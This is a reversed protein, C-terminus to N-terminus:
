HSTIVDRGSTTVYGESSVSRGNMIRMYINNTSSDRWLIDSRTDGDYDGAALVDWSSITVFGESAKVLGNMMSMYYYDNTTDHWLIDANGDGDFDHANVVEWTSTTLYGESKTGTGDMLRVYYNNTSTDLWLIDAKGDGDFDAAAAVDWSSTTVYGEDTKSKGDMFSLFFRSSGDRWLIDAKQDGDFDEVAMVDWSSTTVYGESSVTKGNMIRLFFNNTTNDRWLVDSKGDATFDRTAIVEWTSTTVYGESTKSKGDMFSMFYNDTSTDHWLIDAKADGDFDNLVSDATATPVTVDGYRFLGRGHTAAILTTDDYWFLQDVSVNAPGDNDTYWNSGGDESTFIGVETGVYLWDAANPHRVISRMPAQPLGSSIDSWSSGSDTTKMLNGSSFGGWGAYITQHDDKDIHLALVYKGSNSGDDIQSWSSGGDTSLYISGDNHGVVIVNSDGEAVAIQSIYSGTSSKIASWSPTSAKCDATKWLSAGGGYLISDNNPDVLFPAIFNASSGADSIGSYIDTSNAGNNSRHIQLYVYEGFYYFGSGNTAVGSFGGDGGYTDYFDTGTSQLLNGNDQTGGIVKSDTMGAAGYFQTIGLDNNLDTWGTSSYGSNAATVDEAKYVGGDNVFYVRKNTSGDYNPDHLIGHHDAHISTSYYWTSIKTWNSGGDTSRYIDLGGVILHNADTPDVWITNDYWGQSGMHNVTSTLSWTAGGDTSKYVEGTGGNDVSAYVTNSASEAYAIEVRGYFSGNVIYTGTWSSGGDTTYYVAGESGGIIAKTDDNPDYKVDYLIRYGTMSTTKKTWSAGSDSSLFIGNGRTVAILNGTSDVTIRNVYYWDSDSSPDTASLHSWTTGGDTSKFIGYGRLADANYFGEGTAAYLVTTSTSGTTTPDAVISTISLNGMFDDVPNWSAGGDTSKWIGGAISGVFILDTDTPHVYIARLRGGINGPGLETWGDYAIGAGPAASPNRNISAIISKRANIAKIMGDPKLVGNVSQQAARFASAADPQDPRKPHLAKRFAKDLKAQPLLCLDANSLAMKDRTAQLADPTHGLWKALNATSWPQDFDCRPAAPLASLPTQESCEQTLALPDASQMTRLDVNAFLPTLVALLSLLTKFM